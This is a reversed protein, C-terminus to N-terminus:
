TMMNRYSESLADGVDALVEGGGDRSRVGIKAFASIVATFSV